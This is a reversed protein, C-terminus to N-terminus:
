SGKERQLTSPGGKLNPWQLLSSVGVTGFSGYFASGDISVASTISLVSCCVCIILVFIAIGSHHPLVSYLGTFFAVVMAGVGLKTLWYAWRLFCTVHVKKKSLANYFHCLVAAVSLVLALSDAAFSVTAVLAAVLLHSDSAKRLFSTDLGKNRKSQSKDEDKNMAKQWLLPGIRAKARKLRRIILDKQGFLDEALLIVDVATLNQSNLAMKDVKKDKIFTWGSRTQSHALMHLPTQGEVNKENILARVNMWPINLLSKILFRRQVMFLHLANNGNVDVQECCDPYHSVLLKMVGRNGHTAHGLYAACHLPSWGNEDVEKTLDSKWKLIEKVMIPDRGIVAAHLATRGMPGTHAPPTVTTNEIIIKVLDRFGREAAMYLPTGGSFNAGYTFEPDEEILWKVVEPHHYRVAEHLATDHENNTMRLMAKDVGIGSEIDRETVTKAARLIAKVVELHGERAFQAAIHLITNKNPTLYQVVRPMTRRMIDTSGQAAARYIKPPMYTVDEQNASSVSNLNQLELAHTSTSTSPDM